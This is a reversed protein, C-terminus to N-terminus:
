HCISVHRCQGKEFAELENTYLIDLKYQAEYMFKKSRYLRPCSCKSLYDFMNRIVYIKQSTGRVNEIQELYSQVTDIHVCKTCHISM